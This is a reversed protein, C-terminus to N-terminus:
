SSKRGAWRWRKPDGGKHSWLDWLRRLEERYDKLELWDENRQSKGEAKRM